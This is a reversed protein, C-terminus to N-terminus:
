IHGPCLIKYNIKQLKELSEQMKEPISTPLDTRGIGDYFLTDGSFLVDQYVLSISGKTHGPTKIIKFEKINLKNIDLIKEDKFDQKDGYIKANKFLEINGAHDWHNHTLILINIKNLDLNLERLDEILENRNLPSGTDILINKNKLKVLYVCSGFSQFHLQWINQKIKQIM